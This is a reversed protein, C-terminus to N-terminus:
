KGAAAAADITARLAAPNMFQTSDMERGDLFVTPTGQVGREQLAYNTMADVQAKKQEERVCKEFNPDTVGIDKGWKVLDDPSFGKSGEAPQFRFLAEHYSIWKDAPVCLAAEAARLSNIRIPDKQQGFLHFPRYVVKVKGQEALELVTQGTADEFQKCVPCQFDEFIELVPKEVGPQAMVISGDDQRTLPAVAGQHVEARGQKRQHDVILVTGVVVVAVAVVSGLVIALLRRQRQRADQRKREAALRERASRERAAKSM